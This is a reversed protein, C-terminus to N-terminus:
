WRGLPSTGAELEGRKAGNIKERASGAFRGNQDQLAVGEKKRGFDLTGMIERFINM